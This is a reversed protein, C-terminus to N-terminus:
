KIIVFKGIQVKGMSLDEVTFLYIGSSIAQGISSTLNWDEFGRDPNDHNITDVLDGSLTYIKIECKNPLNIFQIRRDQEMWFQRTGDPKEWKPNFDYYAVDGRYPNPVVAVEGVTEPPPTGPIVTQANITVSSELSPFSTASDPKSYATISYYYEFNNLLGVDEYDYQIGTNPGFDNDPLDYEGLLTWPGASSSTSKYLRYGEFPQSEGDGRNPDSYLEPNVDGPRPEWSVNMKQNGIAIRLPPPPPPSPVRYDRSKLFELYDANALMGERGEGFVNAIEFHLTDGVLVNNWPGFCVSIHAREIDPRDQMIEGSSMGLQYRLPDRGWGGLDEHDYWKFTFIKSPDTPELIKIGIPSYATGDDGGENDEGVALFKEPIFYTWEDIFNNGVDNNGIEGHLWFGVYIEQFNDR